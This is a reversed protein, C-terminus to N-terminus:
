PLDTNERAIYRKLLSKISITLINTFAGQSWQSMAEFMFPESGEMRRNNDMVIM